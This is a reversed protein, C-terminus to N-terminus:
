FSSTRAALKAVRTEELAKTVKEESENIHTYTYRYIFRNIHVM